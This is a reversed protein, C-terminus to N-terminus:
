RGSARHACNRPHGLVGGGDGRQLADGEQQLAGAFGGIADLGEAAGGGRHPPHAALLQIAPDSGARQLLEVADALDCRQGDGFRLSALDGGVQTTQLGGFPAGLVIACRPAGRAGARRNGCESPNTRRRCGSGPSPRPPRALEAVLVHHQGVM